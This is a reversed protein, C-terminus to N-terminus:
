SGSELAAILADWQPKEEVPFTLALFSGMALLAEYREPNKRKAEKHKVQAERYTSALVRVSQEKGHHRFKSVTSGDYLLSEGDLGKVEINM